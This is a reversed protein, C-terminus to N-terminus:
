VDSRQPLYSACQEPRYSKTAIEQLGIVVFRKKLKLNALRPRDSLGAEMPFLSRPSIECLNKWILNYHM